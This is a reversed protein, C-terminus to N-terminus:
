INTVQKKKNNKKFITKYYSRTPKPSVAVYANPFYQSVSSCMKHNQCKM